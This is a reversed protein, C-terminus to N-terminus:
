RTASEQQEPEHQPRRLGVVVRWGVFAMGGFLAILVLWQHWDTRSESGCGPKPVASICDGIARDEPIFENITSDPVATGPVETTPPSAAEAVVVQGVQVVTGLTLLVGVLLVRVPV